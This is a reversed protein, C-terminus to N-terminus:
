GDATGEQVMKLGEAKDELYALLELAAVKLTDYDAANRIRDGFKDSAMKMASHGGLLFGNLSAEKLKASMYAQLEAHVQEENTIHAKM